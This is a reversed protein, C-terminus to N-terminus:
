ADDVHGAFADSLLRDKDRAVDTAGGDGLDFVENVDGAQSQHPALDAAVLRRIYEALSIGEAAAKQKAQRHAEPDLAVQTRVLM